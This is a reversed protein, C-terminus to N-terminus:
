LVARVREIDGPLSDRLYKPWAYLDYQWHEGGRAYTGDPPSKGVSFHLHETFLEPVYVRFGLSNSITMWFDDAFYHLGPPMVFGLAGLIKSSIFPHTCLSEDKIGDRGYILRPKGEMRDLILRDWGPTRMRTDDNMVGVVQYAAITEKAVLNMAQNCESDGQLILLDFLGTGNNVLSAVTECLGAPRNLSPLLVLIPSPM